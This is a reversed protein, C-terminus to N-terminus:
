RCYYLGLLAHLTCTGTTCGVAPDCVRSDKDGDCKSDCKTKPPDEFFANALCCIAGPCDSPEDCVIRAGKCDESPKCARTSAGAGGSGAFEICCIDASTGSCQASGCTAGPLPKAPATSVAGDAVATPAADTALAGGDSPDVPIVDASSTQGPDNQRPDQRGQVDLSCAALLSFGVLTLSFFGQTHAAM